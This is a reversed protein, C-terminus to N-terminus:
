GGCVCVLFAFTTNTNTTKKETESTMWWVSLSHGSVQRFGVGGGLFFFFATPQERTLGELGKAHNTLIQILILIIM